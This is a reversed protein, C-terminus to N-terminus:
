QSYRRNCLANEEGEWINKIWLIRQNKAEELRKESLSKRRCVDAYERAYKLVLEPCFIKGMSKHSLYDGMAEM